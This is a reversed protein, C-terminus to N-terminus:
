KKDNILSLYPYLREKYKFDSEKDYDGVLTGHLNIFERYKSSMLDLFLADFEKPHRLDLNCSARLRLDSFSIILKKKDYGLRRIEDYSTKVEKWLEDINRKKSKKSEKKVVYNNKIKILDALRCWEILTGGTRWKYKLVIEDITKARSVFELFNSYLFKKKPNDLLLNALTKRFKKNSDLNKNEEWIKKLMKGRVTIKNKGKSEGPIQEVLQYIRLTGLHTEAKTEGVKEIKKIRKYENLYSKDTITIEPHEFLAQLTEEPDRVLMLSNESIDALCEFNM